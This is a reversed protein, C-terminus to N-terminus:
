EDIHIVIADAIYNGTQQTYETFTVGRCTPPYKGDIDIAITSWLQDRRTAFQV